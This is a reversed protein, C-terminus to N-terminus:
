GVNRDAAWVEAGLHLRFRGSTAPAIVRVRAMTTRDGINAAVLMPATWARRIRAAELEGGPRDRGSWRAGM